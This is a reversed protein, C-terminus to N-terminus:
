TRTSGFRQTKIDASRHGIEVLFGAITEVFETSGCVLILPQDEAPWAVRDLLERDVSGRHGQWSPPSSHTFVFHVDVEDYAAFRRLEDQYITEEPSRVLYLLKVPAISFTAARQRLVARFPVIGTGDAILQTPRPAPDTWIFYEGIPGRFEVTDGVVLEEALYTSVGGNELGQITLVLYGDEPASALSYSRQAQHGAEDILRVDVHQGALHGEWDPVDLVISRAQAAVQVLEIVLGEYWCVRGPRPAEPM